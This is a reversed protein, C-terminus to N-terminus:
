LDSESYPCGRGSIILQQLASATLGDIGFVIVRDAANDAVAMVLVATFLAAINLWNRMDCFKKKYIVV